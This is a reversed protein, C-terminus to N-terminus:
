VAGAGPAKGHRPRAEPWPEPAELLPRPKLLEIQRPPAPVELPPRPQEAELHAQPEPAELAPPAESTRTAPTTGPRRAAGPAEVARTATAAELIQADAHRSASAKLPLPCRPLRQSHSALPPHFDGATSRWRMRKAASALRMPSPRSGGSSRAHSLRKSNRNALGKSERILRALAQWQQNILDELM